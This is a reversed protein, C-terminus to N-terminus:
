EYAIGKNISKLFNEGDKVFRCADSQWIMEAIADFTAEKEGDIRWGNSVKGIICV